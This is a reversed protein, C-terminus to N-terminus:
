KQERPLDHEWVFYDSITNMNIGMTTTVPEIESFLGTALAQTFRGTDAIWAADALELFDSHIAVVRGTAFYTVTRFFYKGGIVFPISKGDVVTKGQKKKALENYDKEAVYKTGDLTITKM